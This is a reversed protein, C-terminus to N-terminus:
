GFFCWRSPLCHIETVVAMFASRSFYAAIKAMPASLYLLVRVINKRTNRGMGGRAPVDGALQGLGASFALALLLLHFQVPLRGNIGQLSLRLPKAGGGGPFSPITLM